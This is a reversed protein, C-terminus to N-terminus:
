LSEFNLEFFAAIVTISEAVGVSLHHPRCLFHEFLSRSMQISERKM